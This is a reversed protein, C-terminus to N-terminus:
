KKAENLTLTRGEVASIERIIYPWLNTPFQNKCIWHNALKRCNLLWFFKRLKGLTQIGHPKIFLEVTAMYSSVWTWKPVGMTIGFKSNGSRMQFPTSKTM